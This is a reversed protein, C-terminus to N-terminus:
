QEDAPDLRPASQGRFKTTCLDTQNPNDFSSNALGPAKDAWMWALLQTVTRGHLTSELEMQGSPGTVAGPLM